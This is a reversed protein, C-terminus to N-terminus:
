STPEEKKTDAPSEEEPQAPTQPAPPKQEEKPKVVTGRLKEFLPITMERLSDSAKVIQDGVHSLLETQKKMETAGAAKYYAIVAAILAIIAIVLAVYSV